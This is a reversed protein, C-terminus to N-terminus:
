NIGVPVKSKYPHVKQQKYGFLGTAFATMLYTILIIKSSCYPVVQTESLVALELLVPFLVYGVPLM